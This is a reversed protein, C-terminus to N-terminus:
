APLAETGRTTEPPIHQGFKKMGAPREVCIVFDDFTVMVGAVRPLDEAVGPM